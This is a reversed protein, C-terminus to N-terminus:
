YRSCRKRHSVGNICRQNRPSSVCAQEWAPLTLVDITDISDWFVAYDHRHQPRPWDKVARIKDEHENFIRGMVIIDDLYVLCTKWHLGKLVSEM